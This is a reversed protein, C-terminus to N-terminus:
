GKKGPTPRLLAEPHRRGYRWRVLLRARTKELNATAAGLLGRPVRKETSVYALVEVLEPAQLARLLALRRPRHWGQTARVVRLAWRPAFDSDNAAKGRFRTPDPLFSGPLARVEVGAEGFLKTWAWHEVRVFGEKAQDKVTRTVLCFDSGLHGGGAMFGRGCLPCVQRTRQGALRATADALLVEDPVESGDTGVAALLLEERTPLSVEKPRVKGSRLLCDASGLHGRGTEVTAGCDPCVYRFRTELLRGEGDLAAADEATRPTRLEPELPWDSPKGRRWDVTM